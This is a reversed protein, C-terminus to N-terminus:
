PRLFIAMTSPPVKIYNRAVLAMPAFLGVLGIVVSLVVMIAPFELGLFNM